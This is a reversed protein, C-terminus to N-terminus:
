LRMVGAFKVSRKDGLWSSPTELSQRELDKVTGLPPWGSAEPAQQKRCLAATGDGDTWSGSMAEVPPAKPQSYIWIDM